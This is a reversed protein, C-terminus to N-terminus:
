IYPTTYKTLPYHLSILATGNPILSANRVKLVGGRPSAPVALVAEPPPGTMRALPLRVLFFRKAFHVGPHPVELIPSIRAERAGSQQGRACGFISRVNTSVPNWESPSVGAKAGRVVTIAPSTPLGLGYIPCTCCSNSHQWCTTPAM